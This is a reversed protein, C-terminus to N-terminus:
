KLQPIEHGLIEAQRAWMTAREVETRDDYGMLHLIGHVVLLEVEDMTRWRARVANARATQYSIVVEGLSGPATASFSLVDTPADTGHFRLNLRRIQADGGIAITVPALAGTRALARRTIRQLRGLDVYRQWRPAVLYSNRPFRPRTRRPSM